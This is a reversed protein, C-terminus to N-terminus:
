AQMVGLTDSSIDKIHYFSQPTTVFTDIKTQPQQHYADDAATMSDFMRGAREDAM